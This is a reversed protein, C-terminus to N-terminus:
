ARETDKLRLAIWVFIGTILAIVAVVAFCNTPSLFSQLWFFVGASLLMGIFAACNAAAIVAGKREPDPRVQIFSECPILMVGGAIGMMALLSYLFVRQYAPPVLPAFPVTAALAAMAVAMWPLLRYWRRDHPIRAAILGGVVVGILQAFSLNSAGAKGWFFQEQSLRSLIPILLSGVFWVFVDAVLIIVLLSDKRLSWLTAMTDWLGLWPFRVTPDAAPRRPVFLGIVVGVAAVAVVVLGVVVRGFSATGWPPGKLELAHGAIGTGALIAVIVVAQLVANAKVVGSPHYLEPISGKLSPSFIASQTAMIVLMTMILPWSGVIIGAAGCLMAALELTKTFIVVSRKSFRDAMWGAQAALLIFPLFFVVMIWHEMGVALVLVATKFFNDNFAGLAYAGAMAAFQGRASDFRDKARSDMSASLGLDRVAFESLNRCTGFCRVPHGTEKAVNQGHAGRPFRRCEDSALRASFRGSSPALM